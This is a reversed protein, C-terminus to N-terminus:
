AAKLELGVSKQDLKRLKVYLGFTWGMFGYRKTIARQV